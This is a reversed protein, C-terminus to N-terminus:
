AWKWGSWLPALLKRVTPDTNSTTEFDTEERDRYLEAVRKLIAEKAIDPVAAAAGYGCTYTVRVAEIQQRTNPWFTGFVPVVFGPKAAQSVTYASSALTTLVGDVNVYEVSTVSQLPPHPLRIEDTFGCEPRRKSPFRTLWLKRTATIFQFDFGFEGECSARAVKIKRIIEDDDIAITVRSQLKAEALTVPEETPEVEVSTAFDDLM